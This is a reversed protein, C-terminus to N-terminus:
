ALRVLDPPASEPVWADRCLQGEQGFFPSADCNGQYRRIPDDQQDTCAQRAVPDAISLCPDDAHAQAPPVCLPALAVAAAAWVGAIARKM